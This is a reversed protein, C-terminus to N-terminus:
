TASLKGGQITYQFTTACGEFNGSIAPIGAGNLWRELVLTGSLQIARM